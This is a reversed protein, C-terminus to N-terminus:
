APSVLAIAAFPVVRVDRVEATRRPRDAPHEALDCHDAYVRDITGTLGTHADLQMTVPVRQRALSRLPSALGLRRAASHHSQPESRRGLGTLWLCARTPVLLVRDAGEEVLLWELAVDVLGGRLTGVDRVALAVPRDRHAALRDLLGLRALEMRSREALESRDAAAQEGALQGELDAFLEDWRVRSSHWRRLGIQVSDM